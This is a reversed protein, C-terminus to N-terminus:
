TEFTTYRDCGKTLPISPRIERPSVILRFNQRSTQGCRSRSKDLSCQAEVRNNRRLQASGRGIMGASSLGCVALPAEVRVNEPSAM